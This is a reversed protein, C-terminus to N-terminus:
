GAQAEAGDLRHVPVVLQDPEQALESAREFRTATESAVGVKRQLRAGVGHQAAHVATVPGPVVRVFDRREQPGGAGIEGEACIDHHTEGALSIVLKLLREGEDARQRETIQMQKGKRRPRARRAPRKVGGGGYRRGGNFFAHGREAGEGGLLGADMAAAEDAAFEVDDREMCGGRKSGSTGGGGEGLVEKGNVEAALEWRILEKLDADGSKTEVALQSGKM